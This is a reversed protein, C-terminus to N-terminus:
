SSHFYIPTYWSTVVSRGIDPFVILSFCNVRELFLVELNRFNLGTWHFRVCHFNYFIVWSILVRNLWPRTLSASECHVDSWSLSVQEPTNTKKILEHSFHCNFFLMFSYKQASCIYCYNWHPAGSYPERHSWGLIRRLSRNRVVVKDNKKGELLM